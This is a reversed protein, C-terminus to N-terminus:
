NRAVGGLPGEVCPPFQRVVAHPGRGNLHGSPGSTAALAAVEPNTIPRHQCAPHSRHCTASNTTNELRSLPYQLTLQFYLRLYPRALRPSRPPLASAPPFLCALRPVARRTDPPGAPASM